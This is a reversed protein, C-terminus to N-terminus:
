SNGWHGHDIDAYHNTVWLSIIGLHEELFGFPTLTHTAQADSRYDKKRDNSGSECHRDTASPSAGSM